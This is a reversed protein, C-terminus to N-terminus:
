PQQVKEEDYMFWPGEKHRGLLGKQAYGAASGKSLGLIGDARDSNVYVM